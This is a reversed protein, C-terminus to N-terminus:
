VKSIEIIKLPDGNTIQGQVLAAVMARSGGGVSVM